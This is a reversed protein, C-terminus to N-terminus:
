MVMIKSLLFLFIYTFIKAEFCLLGIEGYINKLFQTIESNIKTKPM